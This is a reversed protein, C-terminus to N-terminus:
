VNPKIIHIARNIRRTSKSPRSQESRASEEETMVSVNNSGKESTQRIFHTQSKNEAKKEVKGQDLYGTITKNQRGLKKAIEPTTHGDANMGDIIYKETQTLRGKAM